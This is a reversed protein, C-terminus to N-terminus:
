GPHSPILRHQLDFHRIEYERVAAPTANDLVVIQAARRDESFRKLMAYLQSAIREDYGEDGLNKRPSDIVLLSPLPVEPHRWAYVHHALAHAINVVVRLGGSSLAEFSRGELRPEYTARDIRVDTLRDGVLVVGLENLIARLTTELGAFVDERNRNAARIQEIQARLEAERERLQAHATGVARFTDYMRELEVFRRHESALEGLRRAHAELEAQHESVYRAAQEDLERVLEARRVRLGLQRDSAGTAAEQRRDALATTEELQAAVREREKLLDARTSAEEVSQRCLRCVGSPSEGIPQGCRPCAEFEFGSLVSDSVIARGLRDLQAGLEASLVTMERASQTALRAAREVRSLEDDIELIQRRLNGAVGAEGHRVPVAVLTERERALESIRARAEDRSAVASKSLFERIVSERQELLGIERLVDGLEAEAKALDEDAIGYLYEFVYRRKSERFHDAANFLGRELDDQKLFCWELFDGLSLPDLESEPDRRRRRVRVEPLGLKRTLWTTYTLPAGETARRAPLLLAEQSTEVDVLATETAVFRRTVRVESDGVGFEAGVAQVFQEIEPPNDGAKGAGLAFKMLRWLSTKGTEIDGSIVNM